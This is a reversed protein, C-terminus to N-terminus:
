RNKPDITRALFEEWTLTGQASIPPEKQGPDGSTIALFPLGLDRVKTLVGYLAATDVIHGSLVAEGDKLNHIELGDFWESWRVNLHGEVRIEYFTMERRITKIHM